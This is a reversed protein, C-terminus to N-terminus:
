LAADTRQYAADDNAKVTGLISEWITLLREQLEPAEAGGLKALLDTITRDLEAFGDAVEAGSARVDEPKLDGFETAEQGNAEDTKAGGDGGDDDGGCAATGCLLAATLLIGAWRRM